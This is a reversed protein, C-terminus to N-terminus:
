WSSSYVILSKILFLGICGLADFTGEYHGIGLVGINFSSAGRLISEVLTLVKPFGIVALDGGEICPTWVM